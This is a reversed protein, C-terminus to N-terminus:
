PDFLYVKTSGDLGVYVVRDSQGRIFAKIEPSVARTNAMMWDSAILWSRGVGPSLLTIQLKEVDMILPTTVYKDRLVDGEYYTQLEHRASRVWHDTRGLYAYIERSDLVLVADEPSSHDRVYHAPTRYDPYGEMGFLGYAVGENRHQRQTMLFGRLPNLDYVLVLGALILAVWTAQTGQVAPARGGLAPILEPWKSLGLAVFCFYFVDFPVMYRFSDFPYSFLGNVILPLAFILILYLAADDPERRAARDFAWAGGIVAVISTLPREYLFSWFVEFRPYDLLQKVTRRLAVLASEQGHGGLDLGFGLGAWLLLGVAVLCLSALVDSRMFGELGDRKLYALVLIGILAANLQQLVCSAAIVAVVFVELRSLPLSRARAIFVAAAVFALALLLTVVPAREWLTAVLTLDPLHIQRAVFQWVEGLFGGAPPALDSAPLPVGDSGFLPINTYYTVTERWWFFGLAVAAFASAPFVLRRPEAVVRAPRMLPPILFALALTYGLQHLSISILALVVCGLGGALSQEVVRYRWLGYVTALYFCAFPMYMRAYQSLEIDWPSIALLAAVLLGVRRGFLRWAFFYGLYIFVVGFLAAPLRLAFEGMGFIDASLAMLYLFGGGRLYIMGSPLEPIGKELIAQVVLYSLDEDWRNGLEGLNTLRFFAGVALILILPVWSLSPGTTGHPDKDPM